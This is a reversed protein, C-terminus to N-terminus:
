QGMRKLREITAARSHRSPKAPPTIIKPAASSPRNLNVSGDANLFGKAKMEAHTMREIEKPPRSRAAQDLAVRARYSIVQLESARAVAARLIADVKPLISNEVAVAHMALLTAELPIAGLDRVWADVAGGHAEIAAEDVYRGFFEVVHQRLVDPAPPKGEAVIEAGSRELEERMAPVAAIKRAADLGDAANTLLTVLGKRIATPGPDIGPLSM